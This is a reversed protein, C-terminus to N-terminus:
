KWDKHELELLYVLIKNHGKLTFRSPEKDSVIEPQPTGYDAMFQILVGKQSPDTVTLGTKASQKVIDDLSKNPESAWVIWIKETGRELGNRNTFENEKTETKQGSIIRADLQNNERTPFLVHWNQSTGQNFIYLAGAQAPIFHFKFKDGTDFTERGTANIIKGDRQRVITLGYTLTREPGLVAPTGPPSTPTTSGSKVPVRRLWLTVGLAIILLAAAVPWLKLFRQWGKPKTKLAWALEDSFKRASKYRKNPEYSLAKLIVQDVEAPLGRRWVSPKVQGGKKQMELLQSPTGAGKFPHRGMMLEYVIVALAYIDSRATPEERRLQEPSMYLPTGVFLPDIKSKAVETDRVKAVGFDIIKVHERGARLLQLMINEPKLDRHFIGHHHATDLAEAAQELIDVVRELYLGKSQADLAARLTTGEVYQMVFYPQGDQLTGVDSIGVIGPHEGMRGLAEAERKFMRVAVESRLSKELLLKVAVPKKTRQDRALYVIGLNGSGLEKEIEYRGDLLMGPRLTAMQESDSSMENRRTEEKVLVEIALASASNQLFDGQVNGAALLSIAERRLDEDDACAKNLFACRESENLPLAAQFIEKLRQWREPSIVEENFRRKANEL